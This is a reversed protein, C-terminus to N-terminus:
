KVPASSLGPSESLAALAKLRQAIQENGVMKIKSVPDRVSVRSSIM